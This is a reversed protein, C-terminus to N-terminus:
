KSSNEKYIAYLSIPLFIILSYIFYDLISSDQISSPLYGILTATLNNGLHMVIPVYLSRSFLFGLAMAIGLITAFAGQVLNLHFAGFILGSFLVISWTPYKAREFERFLIGRMLVEEGISALLVVSILVLIPNAQGTLVEFTEVYEAVLAPDLYSILEVILGAAALTGFGGVFSWILTKISVKNFRLLQKLDNKRYLLLVVLLTLIQTIILSLVLINSDLAASEGLVSVFGVVAIINLTLYLGIIGIMALLPRLKDFVLKIM